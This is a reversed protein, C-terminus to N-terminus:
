PLHTGHCAAEQGVFRVDQQWTKREGSIKCKGPSPQSVALLDTARGILNVTETKDRFQQLRAHATAWTPIPRDRPWAALSLVLRRKGTELRQLGPLRCSSCDAGHEVLGRAEEM